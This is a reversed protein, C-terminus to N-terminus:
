DSYACLGRIVASKEFQLMNQSCGFTCVMNMLIFASRLSSVGKRNSIAYFLGQRATRVMFMGYLARMNTPNLKIAQAFYGRAVEM